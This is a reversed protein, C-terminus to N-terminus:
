IYIYVSIRTRIYPDTYPDYTTMEAEMVAEDYIDVPYTIKVVYPETELPIEVTLDEYERGPDMYMEEEEEEEAEKPAEPLPVLQKLYSPLAEIAAM